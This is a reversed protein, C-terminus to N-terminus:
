SHVWGIALYQFDHISHCLVREVLDGQHESWTAIPPQVLVTSDLTTWSPMSHSASSAGAPTSASTGSGTGGQSSLSSGSHLTAAAMAVMAAGLAGGLHGAGGVCTSDASGGAWVGGATSSSGDSGFAAVAGNGVRRPCGGGLGNHQNQLLQTPFQHQEGIFASGSNSTGRGPVWNGWIPNATLGSDVQPPLNSVPTCGVGISGGGSAGNTGGASAGGLGGAGCGGATAGLNGDGTSGSHAQHLGLAGCLALAASPGGTSTHPTALHPNWHTATSLSHQLQQGMHHPHHPNHSHHSATPEELNNALYHAEPRCSLHSYHPDHSNAGSLRGTGSHHYVHAFLFFKLTAGILPHLFLYHM